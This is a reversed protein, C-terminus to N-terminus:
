YIKLNPQDVKSLETITELDNLANTKEKGNLNEKILRELTAFYEHLENKSISQNVNNSNVAVNGGNNFIINDGTKQKEPVREIMDIGRASIFYIITDSMIAPNNIMGKSNLMEISSRIKSTNTFGIISGILASDFQFMSDFGARRYIDYTKELLLMATENITLTNLKDFIELTHETPFIYFEGNGTQDFRWHVAKKLKLEQLFKRIEEIEMNVNKALNKLSVGNEPHKSNQQLYDLAVLILNETEEKTLEIGM